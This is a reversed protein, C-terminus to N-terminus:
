SAATYEKLFAVARQWADGAASAVYAARQDDLFAHGALDYIKLDLPVRLAAAFNRVAAAPIGKDRAGYSGCWPVDIALPDIGEIPGYFPCVASFTGRDDISAQMAIRGGMCFGVIGTKSPAFRAQVWRAAAALDASTQARELHKSYPRFVAIDTVGDGSPAQQRAYLDPAIAAFGAVALRRVVDRISTDVGWVHMAVAVSPTGGRADHPWAAYAPIETGGDGAIRVHEAVIAPDDPSVLPAHPGGMPGANQALAPAAMAGAAAAIGVFTRRNLNM